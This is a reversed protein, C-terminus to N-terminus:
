PRDGAAASVRYVRGARADLYWLATGDFALGAPNRGELKRGLARSRVM